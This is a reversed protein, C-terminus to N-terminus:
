TLDYPTSINGFYEDFALSLKTKIAITHYTIDEDIYVALSLPGSRYNTALTQAQWLIDLSCFSCITLLSHNPSISRPGSRIYFNPIGIFSAFTKYSKNLEETMRHRTIDATSQQWTNMDNHEPLNMTYDQLIILQILGMAIVFMLRKKISVQRSRHSM